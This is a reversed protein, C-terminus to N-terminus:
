PVRYLVPARVFELSTGKVPPVQPESDSLRLTFNNVKICDSRTSCTVMYRLLDGPGLSKTDYSLDGGGPILLHRKVLIVRGSPTKLDASALPKPTAKADSPVPGSTAESREIAALLTRAAPALYSKPQDAILENCAETAIDLRRANFASVGMSLLAQSAEDTGPRDSVIQKYCNVATDLGDTKGAYIHGMLMAAQPMLASARLSATFKELHQLTEAERKERFACLALGYTATARDEPEDSGRGKRSRSPRPTASAQSVRPDSGTAAKTAQMFQEFLERALSNEGAIYYFCALRLAPGQEPTLSSWVDQPVLFSGSDSASTLREIVGSRTLMRGGQAENLRDVQDFAAKASRTDGQLVSSYGTLLKIQVQLYPLYWKCTHQNIISEPRIFARYYGGLQTPTTFQEPAPFDRLVSKLASLDTATGTQAQITWQWARDLMQKAADADARSWAQKCRLRSLELMAEGRYPGTENKSIFAEYAVIGEPLRGLAVLCAASYCEAADALLPAKIQGYSELAQEYKREAQAIRGARYAAFEQGYLQPIQADRAAAMLKRTKNGIERLETNYSKDYAPLRAIDSLVSQCLEICTKYRSGAFEIAALEYGAGCRAPSNSSALCRRFASIAGASDNAALLCRGLELQVFSQSAQVPSLALISKKAADPRGLGREARALDAIFVSSDDKPNRKSILNLIAAKAQEFEGRDLMEYYSARDAEDGLAPMVCSLLVVVLHLWRVTFCKKAVKDQNWRNSM